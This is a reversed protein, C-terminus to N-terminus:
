DRRRKGDDRLPDSDNRGATGPPPIAREGTRPPPRLSAAAAAAGGGQDDRLVRVRGDPTLVKLRAVRQSGSRMQEAKLVQGNTEREVRRVADPLRTDAADRALAPPGALLLAIALAALTSAPRPTTRKPPRM